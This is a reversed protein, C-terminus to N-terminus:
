RVVELDSVRWASKLTRTRGSATEFSFRVQAITTGGMTITGIWGTEKSRVRQGKKMDRREPGIGAEGVLPPHLPSLATLRPRNGRLHPEV